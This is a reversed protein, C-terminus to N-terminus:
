SLFRTGIVFRVKAATRVAIASDIRVSCPSVVMVGLRSRTIRVSATTIDSPQMWPTCTHVPGASM